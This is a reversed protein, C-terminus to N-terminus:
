FNFQWSFQFLQSNDSKNIPFLIRLHSVKDFVRNVWGPLPFGRHLSYIPMPKWVEKGEYKVEVLYRSLLKKDWNEDELDEARYSPQIFYKYLPAMGELSPDDAKAPGIVMWQTMRRIYTMEAGHLAPVIQFGGLSGIPSVSVDIVGAHNARIRGPDVYKSGEFRGVGSVPRLVEGILKEEGSFYCITIRGGFRNEIVIEKPFEVPRKVLIYYTDGVQPVYDLPLPLLPQAPRSLMVVNGVFPSFGGGFISEGASIDVYISSNPSLYSRYKRPPMLFEKPLISFIARSEDSPGAKIHIANVATAVVRGPEMWRSASYGHPNIKQTPYLVKGAANWSKGKDESVEIAGNTWNEIKIRYIEEFEPQNEYGIAPSVGRELTTAGAASALLCFVLIWSHIKM